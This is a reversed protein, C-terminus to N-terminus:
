LFLSVNYEFSALIQALGRWKRAEQTELAVGHRRRPRGQARERREKAREPREKPREPSNRPKEQARGPGKQTVLSGPLWLAAM